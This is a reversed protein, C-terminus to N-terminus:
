FNEFVQLKTLPRMITCCSVIELVSRLQRVRQIRNLLCDIVEKYFEANVTKGEPTFEKLVVGGSDFVIILM